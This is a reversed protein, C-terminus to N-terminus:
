FRASSQLLLLFITKQINRPKKRQFVMSCHGKENEGVVSKLVCGAHGAKQIREVQSTNTTLQGPAVILSNKLTYPGYRGKLDIGLEEKVIESFNKPIPHISFYDSMEKLNKIREEM